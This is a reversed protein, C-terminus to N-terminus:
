PRQGKGGPAGGRLQAARRMAGDAHVRVKIWHLERKRPRPPEGGAARDPAPRQASGEWALDRVQDRTAV